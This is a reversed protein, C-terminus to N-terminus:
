GGTRERQLAARAETEARKLLSEERELAGQAAALDAAATREDNATRDREAELQAIRADISALRLSDSDNQAALASRRSLLADEAHHLREVEEAYAPRWEIAPRAQEAFAVLAEEHELAARRAEERTTTLARALDRRRRLVRWAYGASGIWGEPPEGHDALLKADAVVDTPDEGSQRALPRQTSTRAASPAEPPGAAGPKSSRPDFALEIAAAQAANERRRSRRPGQDLAPLALELGQAASM